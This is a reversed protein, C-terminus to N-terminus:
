RLPWSNKTSSRTTGANSGVAACIREHLKTKLTQWDDDTVSYYVSNRRHGDSLILHNRWVGERVAGLADIAHQSRLNRVDTKITVRVAGLNGIAHALMLYKAEANIGTGWVSPTLWSWGIEVGRNAPRIDVYSTSGVARGTITDIIAFPLRLGRAHEDHAQDILQSIDDLTHPTPEDLYTWIDDYHAAELLDAAHDHSLPELRARTGTLTVPELWASRDAPTTTM